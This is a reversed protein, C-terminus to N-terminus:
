RSSMAGRSSSFTRYKAADITVATSTSFRADSRFPRSSWTLLSAPRMSTSRSSASAASSSRRARRRSKKAFPLSRFKSSSSSKQTRPRFLQASSCASGVSSSARLSTLPSSTSSTGCIEVSSEFFIRSSTRLAAIRSSRLSAGRSSSCTATEASCIRWDIWGSSFSMAFAVPAFFPAIVFCMWRTTSESSFPSSM